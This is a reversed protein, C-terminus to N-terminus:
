WGAEHDNQHIKQSVLMTWRQSSRTRWAGKEETSTCFKALVQGRSKGTVTVDPPHDTTLGEIPAVVLLRVIWSVTSQQDCYLIWGRQLPHRLLTLATTTVPSLTCRSITKYVSTQLRQFCHAPRHHYSNQGPAGKPGRSARCYKVGGNGGVPSLLCGPEALPFSDRPKANLFDTAYLKMEDRPLVLTERRVNGKGQKTDM